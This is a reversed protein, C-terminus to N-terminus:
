LGLSDESWHANKMSSGEPGMFYKKEKVKETNFGWWLSTKNV